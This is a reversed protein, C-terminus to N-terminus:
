KKNDEVEKKLLSLEQILLITKKRQGAIMITLVMTLLLLLGIMAAIVLNSMVEFGLTKSIKVFLSPFLAVLLIVLAFFYWVLSYKEPIRRKILFFSTIIAIFISVTILSIVLSIPM